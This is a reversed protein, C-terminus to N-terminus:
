FDIAFIEPSGIHTGGAIRADRHPNEAPQIATFPTCCGNLTWWGAGVLPPAITMAGAKAVAIDPGVVELSGLISSYLTNAPITYAIHHSLHNPATNPPLILDIEVTAAGSPPIALPRPGLLLLTVDQLAVYQTAAVLAQGEIHMLQNGSEDTVDIS